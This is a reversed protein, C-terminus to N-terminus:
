RLSSGRLAKALFHVGDRDDGQVILQHLFVFRENYPTGDTLRFTPPPRWVNPPTVIVSLMHRFRPSSDALEAPTASPSPAPDPLRRVRGALRAHRAAADSAEVVSSQEYGAYLVRATTTRAVTEVNRAATKAEFLWIEAFASKASQRVAEFLAPGGNSHAAVGLLPPDPAAGPPAAIDGLAVLAAHVQGLQAPLEGTGATNHGGGSPVPLVLAVHRDSAMLAEEWSRDIVENAVRKGPVRTFHDRDRRPLAEDHRPTGLFDKARAALPAFLNPDMLGEDADREVPTNQPATLFCLLDTVSASTCAPPTACIYHLPLKGDTRALIRVNATASRTRMLSLARLLLPQAGTAEVVQTLISVQWTAAFSGVFSHVLPHRGQQAVDATAGPPRVAYETPTPGGPTLLSLSPPLLDFSQRIRLVSMPRGIFAPLFEVTLVVKPPSATSVPLTGEARGPSLTLPVPTGDLTLEVKAGGLLFHTHNPWSVKFDM